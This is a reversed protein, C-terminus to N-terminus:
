FVLANKSTKISKCIDVMSCVTVGDLIQEKQVAAAEVCTGCANIKVGLEMLESLKKAMNLEKLGEPPKQGKMMAYVGADILFVEVQMDVGACGAAARLGNWTRMSSPGDNIIITVKDM